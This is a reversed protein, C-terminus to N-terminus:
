INSGLAKLESRQKRMQLDCWRRFGRILAITVKLAKIPPYVWTSTLCENGTYMRGEKYQTVRRQKWWRKFDVNENRSNSGMIQDLDIGSLCVQTESCGNQKRSGLLEAYVAPDQGTFMSNCYLRFFYILFSAIQLWLLNSSLIFLWQSYYSLEM